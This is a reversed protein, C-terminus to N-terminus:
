KMKIKALYVTSSRKKISNLLFIYQQATKSNFDTKPAAGRFIYDYQWSLQRGTTEYCVNENSSWMYDTELELEIVNVLYNEIIFGLAM